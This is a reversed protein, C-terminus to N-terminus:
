WGAPFGGAAAAALGTAITEKHEGGPERLHVHMDILGPTIWLGAADVTWVGGNSDIIQQAAPITTGSPSAAFCASSIYILILSLLVKISNRM